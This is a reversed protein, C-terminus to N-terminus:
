GKDYIQICIKDESYSYKFTHVNSNGMDKILEEYYSYEYTRGTAIDYVDVSTFPTWNEFANYLKIVTM